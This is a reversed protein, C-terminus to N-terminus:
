KKLINELGKKFVKESFTAHYSFPFNIQLRHVSSLQFECHIFLSFCDSTHFREYIHVLFYPFSSPQLFQHIIVKQRVAFVSNLSHQISHSIEKNQQKLPFYTHQNTLILYLHCCQYCLISKVVIKQGVSKFDLLMQELFLSSFLLINKDIFRSTKKM